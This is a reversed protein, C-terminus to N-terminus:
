LNGKGWSRRGIYGATEAMHERPMRWAGGWVCEKLRRERKAGREQDEGRGRVGPRM